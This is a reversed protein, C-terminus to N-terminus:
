SYSEDCLLTIYFSCIENSLLVFYCSDGFMLIKSVYSVWFLFLVIWRSGGGRRGGLLFPFLFYLSDLYMVSGFSSISVILSGLTSFRTVMYCLGAILMCWAGFCTSRFASGLQGRCGRVAGIKSNGSWPLVWLPSSNWWGLRTLQLVRFAISEHTAAKQKGGDLRPCDWTKYM